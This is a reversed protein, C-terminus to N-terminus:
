PNGVMRYVTEGDLLTRVVAVRGIEAAELEFLNRDLVVLDAAKGVEISATLHDRGM